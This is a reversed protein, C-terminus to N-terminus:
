RLTINYTKGGVTLTALRDCTGTGYDITYTGGGSRTATVEGSEIWRCDAAVHLPTSSSVSFTVSRGSARTVTTTGYIDYEDDWRRPTSYGATWTRTRSGAWSIITGATSDIVLTDHVDISYYYNGSSNRGMNTVTKYGKVQNDDYYYHNYTITHVSGSDKYGKTYTVIIEGRRYVLDDGLCDTPGFDITLVHPTVTTDRTVTACSGLGVSITRLDAGSAGNAGADAINEADNSVREIQANDQAATSDDGSVTEATKKCAVVSVLTLAILIAGSRIKTSTNM